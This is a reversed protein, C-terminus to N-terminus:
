SDGFNVEVEVGNIQRNDLVYKNDNEKKQM